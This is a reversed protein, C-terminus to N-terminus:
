LNLGALVIMGRSGLLYAMPLMGAAWLVLLSPEDANVHFGQAILFIAAGYLLAGLFLIANGTGRMGEKEYRLWYGLGYAAIVAAFICALKVAAPTSRWNSALLLIVGLGLLTAGLFALGVAVRNGRESDERRGSRALLTKAQEENILGGERWTEIERALRQPFERDTM